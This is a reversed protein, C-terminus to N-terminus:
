MLQYEALQNLTVLLSKLRSKVINKNTTNSTDNLYLTWASTWYDNSMQNSLLSQIKIQEKQTSSIDIPLLYQISEAVLLDPNACIAPSFQQIFGILDVEIRTTLLNYTLNYGNFIKNLFDFRKQTTSSNIWYEHFSPNQYFAVWGSVNPIKGMTQELGSLVTNNFYSWVRYQAEFNTADTVAYNLNFTRLSGIVLDFPSKIYVGRNAIDYFHQSKFLQNLVPAIEWNNAVFTQALPRIINSEITADIDYYIFYRYLRRCIYESVVQSKTFIMDILADLESAGANSIVTNNFFSSFQKNSTDHFNTDFNTSPTATNLNVVRWGTLVKAAQLVDAETYQSLPDKGLTFLEMLERAFNEDPSTKTNAQNNLYYMMAPQTAMKRILTKYNGLPNDRFMKMYSYLIRCSNSGAHSFPASRVTEFDVPIFHYWFWTMKEKITLNQNCALGFNWQSLSDIRRSNTTNTGTPLPDNTWDAGYPLNSEDPSYNNYSNVPPAPATTSINLVANVANTMNLALLADVDAKKFGYGTRKLLHLVEQKGWSGSYPNLGSNIPVVRDTFGSKAASKVSQYRRGTFIKRSYKEFLPDKTDQNIKLKNLILNFLSRRNM